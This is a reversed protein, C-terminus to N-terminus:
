LRLFLTFCSHVSCSSCVQFWLCMGVCCLIESVMSSCFPCLNLSVIPLLSLNWSSKTLQCDKGRAWVENLTQGSEGPAGSDLCRM